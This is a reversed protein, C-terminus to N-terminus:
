ERPEGESTPNSLRLTKSMAYADLRNPYYNPLVGRSRYGHKKWFAIASENNTATELWVEEIDQESMKSEACQLLASAVGRRRHMELVDITVIHGHLQRSITVVFGAIRSRTQSKRFGKKLMEAVICETGRLSLYWRLENRTYAVEPSYCAQDITYLTEFDQDRAARLVINASSLRRANKPPPNV